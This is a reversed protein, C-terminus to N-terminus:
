WLKCRNLDANKVNEIDGDIKVYPCHHIASIHNYLIM